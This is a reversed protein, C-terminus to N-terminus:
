FEMPFMTEHESFQHLRSFMEDKIQIEVDNGVVQCFPVNRLLSSVTPRTTECPDLAYTIFAKSTPSLRDTRVGFRDWFQDFDKSRFGAFTKSVPVAGRSFPQVGMMMVFLCIAASWVDTKTGDYTPRGTVLIEPAMYELTGCRTHFIPKGADTFSGSLDFDSIKLNCSSDLLLNELKVDRHCVNSAHIAQIGNLLQMFYFRTQRETLPGGKDKIIDFFDGHCCYELVMINAFPICYVDHVRVINNHHVRRLNEIEREFKDDELATTTDCMKLAVTCNLYKDNYSYVTGFSGTGIRAQFTYRHKLISFCDGSGTTLM